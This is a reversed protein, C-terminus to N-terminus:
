KTRTQVLTSLTKHYLTCTMAYVLSRVMQRYIKIESENPVVPENDTYYSNPNAKCPTTTPKCQDFCFRSLVDKQYRSQSMTITENTREFEITLFSSLEGLDKKNFQNSLKQKLEKSSSAIIIDDVWVLLIIVDNEIHKIFMCPDASSQEFDMDQLYQHLLNHWNRGSQKLGYLSKNLKWILHANPLEQYGPPQQVYAECEIPANLYAGKVDMMHLLWDEQVAIQVLM